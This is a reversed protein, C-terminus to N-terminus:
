INETFKPEQKIFLCTWSSPRSLAVYIRLGQQLIPKFGARMELRPQNCAQYEVSILGDIGDSRPESTFVSDIRKRGGLFWRGFIFM